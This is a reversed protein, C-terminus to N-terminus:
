GAPINASALGGALLALSAKKIAPTPSTIAPAPNTFDPPFEIVCNIFVVSPLHNQSGTFRIRCNKFTTTGPLDVADLIVAVGSFYSSARTTSRVNTLSIFPANAPPVKSAAISDSAFQVFTLVTPWYEPAKKDSKYLKEAVALLASRSPAQQPQKLAALLAPLAQMFERQGLRGFSEISGPGRAIRIAAKLGAIDEGQRDLRDRISDFQRSLEIKVPEMQKVIELEIDRKQDKEDHGQQSQHATVAWTIAGAMITCGVGVMASQFWPKEYFKPAKPKPVSDVYSKIQGTVIRQVEDRDLLNEPTAPTIKKSPVSPYLWWNLASELDTEPMDRLVRM